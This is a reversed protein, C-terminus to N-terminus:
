RLAKVTGLVRNSALLAIGIHFLARTDERRQHLGRDGLSPDPTLDVVELVEHGQVGQSSSAVVIQHLVGDKGPDQGVVFTFLQVQGVWLGESVQGFGHPSLGLDPHLLKEPSILFPIIRVIVGRRVVVASVVGAGHNHGRVQDSQLRESLVKEMELNTFIWVASSLTKKM